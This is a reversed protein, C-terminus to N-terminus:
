PTQFDWESALLIVAGHGNNGWMPETRGWYFFHATRGSKLVKTSQSGKKSYLVVLDNASVELDPFWYAGKWGATPNGDSVLSRLIVYDGVNLAASAKLILRENSLVGPEAFSSFQLNM